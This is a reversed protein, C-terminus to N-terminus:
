PHEELHTKNRGGVPSTPFLLNGGPGLVESLADVVTKVGGEVFGIKSLSVHVLVSDGAAVGIKRLDAVLSDKSFVKGSRKQGELEKRRQNKKLKKAWELVFEPAYKLALRKLM